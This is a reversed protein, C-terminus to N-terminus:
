RVVTAAKEASSKVEAQKRSRSSKFLYITGQVLWTLVILVVAVLLLQRIGPAAAAVDRAMLKMLIFINTPVWYDGNPYLRFPMLLATAVIARLFIQLFPWVSQTMRWFVLMCGISGGLYILWAQIYPSTLVVNQWIAYMQEFMSLQM